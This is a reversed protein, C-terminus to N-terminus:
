LKTNYFVRHLLNLVARSSLSGICYMIPFAFNPYFFLASATLNCLNHDFTNSATPILKIVFREDDPPMTGTSLFERRAELDRRVYEINITRPEINHETAWKQFDQLKEYYKVSQINVLQMPQRRSVQGDGNQISKRICQALEFLVECQYPFLPELRCQLSGKVLTAPQLALVTKAFCRIPATQQSFLSLQPSAAADPSAERSLSQLFNLSSLDNFKLRKPKNNIAVLDLQRAATCFKRHQDAILTERVTQVEVSKMLPFPMPLTFHMETQVERMVMDKKSRRKLESIEKELHNTQARSERLQSELAETKLSAERQFDACTSNLRLVEQKLQIIESRPSPLMFPMFNSALERVMQQRLQYINDKSFDMPANRSLREAIQCVFIGCDVGNTQLPIDQAASVSWLKSDYDHRLHSHQCVTHFFKLMQKCENIGQYIRRSDYFCIQTIKPRVEILTWHMMNPVHIPIIIIEFGFLNYIKALRKGVREVCEDKAISPLLFSSFTHVRPLLKNNLSRQALLIFFANIEEDMLKDGNRVRHLAELSVLTSRQFVSATEPDDSIEIVNTTDM